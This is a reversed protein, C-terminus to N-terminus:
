KAEEVAETIVQQVIGNIAAVLALVALGRLIDIQAKTLKPKKTKAKM